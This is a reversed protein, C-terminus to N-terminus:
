KSVGELASLLRRQRPREITLVYISDVSVSLGLVMTLTSLLTMPEWITLVSLGLAVVLTLWPTTQGTTVATRLASRERNLAEEFPLSLDSLERRNERMLIFARYALMVVSMAAVIRVATTQPTAFVLTAIVAIVLDGALRRWRRASRIRLAVAFPPPVMPPRDVPFIAALYTKCMACGPEHAELATLETVSIAEVARKELLIEFSEHDGM